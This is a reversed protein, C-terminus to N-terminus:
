NKREHSMEEFEKFYGFAWRRMTRRQTGTCLRITKM